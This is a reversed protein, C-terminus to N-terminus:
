PKRLWDNFAKESLGFGLSADLRRTAKGNEFLMVTPVAEMEYDDWLHNDDDDVYVRLVKDYDLKAVAKEFASFFGHCFPCWSACFLVLVRKHPKVHEELEHKSNFTNM